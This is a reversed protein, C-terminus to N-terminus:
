FSCILSFIEEGLVSLEALIRCLFGQSQPLILNLSCYLTLLLLKNDSFGVLSAAATCGGWYYM